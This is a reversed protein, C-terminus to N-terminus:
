ITMYIYINLHLYNDVKPHMQPLEQVCDMEAVTSRSRMGYGAGEISGSVQSRRKNQIKRLNFLCWFIWYKVTYWKGPQTYVGFIPPHDRVLFTKYLVYLVILCVVFWFM